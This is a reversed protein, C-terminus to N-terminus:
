QHVDNFAIELNNLHTMATDREKMITEKQNEFQKKEEEKQALLQSITREYEELVLRFFWDNM